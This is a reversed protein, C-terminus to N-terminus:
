NTGDECQVFNYNFFNYSVKLYRDFVSPIFLSSFKINFSRAKGNDSFGFNSLQIKLLLYFARIQSSKTGNQYCQPQLKQHKIECVILGFFKGIYWLKALELFFNNFKGSKSVM